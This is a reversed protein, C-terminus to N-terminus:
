HRPPAEDDAPASRLLLLALRDQVHALRELVCDCELLRQLDSAPEELVSCLISSLEEPKECCEAVVRSLAQGEAPAVAALSRLVERLMGVRSAFRAPEPLPLPAPEVQVTRYLCGSEVEGVLRVREVGHVIINYRGDKLREHGVIRGATAVPQLAPGLPTEGGRPDVQWVALPLSRALCHQVLERYRPEFVHLPMSAHPFLVVGKLPFM